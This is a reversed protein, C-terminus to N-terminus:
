ISYISYLLCLILKGTLSRPLILLNYRPKADTASIQVLNFPCNLANYILAIYYRYM